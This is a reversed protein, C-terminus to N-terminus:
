DDLPTQIKAYYREREARTALRASIIRLKDGRSTHAVVVVVGAAIMGYSVERLEDYDFRDDVDTVVFGAFIGKAQEFSVGHKGINEANKEEDWEFEM